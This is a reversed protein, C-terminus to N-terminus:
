YVYSRLATKARQLTMKEVFSVLGAADRAEELSRTGQEVNCCGHAVVLNAPEKKGGHVRAQRHALHWGDQLVGIPADSDECVGCLTEHGEGACCLWTLARVRDM